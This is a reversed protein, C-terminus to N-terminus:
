EMAGRIALAAVQRPTMGDDYYDRYCIDPLDASTMGMLRDSIVNDVSQMWEEFTKTNM